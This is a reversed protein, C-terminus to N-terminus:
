FFKYSGIMSNLLMYQLVTVKMNAVTTVEAEYLLVLNSYIHTCVLIVFKSDFSENKSVLGISIMATVLSFIFPAQIFTVNYHIKNRTRSTM